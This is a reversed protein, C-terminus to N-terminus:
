LKKKLRDALSRVANQLTPNAQGLAHDVAAALSPPPPAAPEVLMSLTRLPRAKFADSPLTAAPTALEVPAPSPVRTVPFISILRSVLVAPAAAIGEPLQLSFPGSRLRDVLVAGHTALSPVSSASASMAASALAVAWASTGGELGKVLSAFHAAHGPRDGASLWGIWQGRAQLLAANFLASVDGEASIVKVALTGREQRRTLVGEVVTRESSPAAIVVELPRHSQRDLSALTADLGDGTTHAVLVSLLGPEPDIVPTSAGPAAVYLFRDAAADPNIQEFLQRLAAEADVALGSPVHGSIVLDRSAVSRGLQSLWRRLEKESLGPSVPLGALAQVLRAGSAGNAISFIWQADPSAKALASLNAAGDGERLFGDFFVIAQPAFKELAGLDDPDVLLECKQAELSKVLAPDAGLVAVRKGLGVRRAVLTRLDAAKQAPQDM